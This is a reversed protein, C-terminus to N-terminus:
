MNEFIDSKAHITCYLNHKKDRREKRWSFGPKSIYSRSEQKLPGGMKLYLNWFSDIPLRERPSTNRHGPREQLFAQPFKGM